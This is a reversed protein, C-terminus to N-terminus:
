RMLQPTASPGVSADTCVISLQGLQPVFTVTVQLRGTSIRHSPGTSRVQNSSAWTSLSPRIM